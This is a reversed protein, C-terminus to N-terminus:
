SIGALRKVTEYRRIQEVTDQGNEANINYSMNTTNYTDGSLTFSTGLGINFGDIVDRIIGLQNDLESVFAEGFKQASISGSVYFGEPILLGMESIKENMYSVSDSIGQRFEDEYQAFSVKESLNYKEFVKETYTFFTNDDANLLASMFPIADDVDMGRIQSLLYNGTNEPVTLNKFREKLRDMSRSYRDIAEIDASLDHLSYYHDTFGNMKVTNVNYLSGFSNLNDALRQQKKLISNLKDIAYDSIDDYLSKYEKKEAEIVKEQYAYIMKTYKIWNDTGKQLYSDRLTELRTFYEEESILDFERQYRLREYFGNFTKTAERSSDALKGLMATGIYRAAEEGISKLKNTDM